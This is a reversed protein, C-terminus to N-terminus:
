RFVVSVVQSRHDRVAVDVSEVTVPPGFRAAAAVLAPPSFGAFTPDPIGFGPRLPREGVVTLALAALQDRDAAESGQDVSVVTGDPGVRFPFSILRPM